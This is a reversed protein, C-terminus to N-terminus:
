GFDVGEGFDPRVPAPIRRSMAAFVISIRSERSLSIVLRSLAADCRLARWIMCARECGCGTVKTSNIVVTDSANDVATAAVATDIPMARASMNPMRASPSEGSAIANSIPNSSNTIPPSVAMM